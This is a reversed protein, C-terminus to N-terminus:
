FISRTLRFSYALARDKNLKKGPNIYLYYSGTRFARPAVVAKARAYGCVNAKGLSIRRLVTKGSKGRVVFGYVRKGAYTPNSVRVVRKARSSRPSSAVDASVTSVKINTSGTVSTGGGAAFEKVELKVTRGASPNIGTNYSGTITFTANGAPDYTGIVSGAKGGVGYIQFDAGPTGGSISGTIPQWVTGGKDLPHYVSVYCPVSPTITTAASAVAPAAAVGIMAAAPAAALLLPRPM